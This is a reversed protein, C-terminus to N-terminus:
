PHHLKIITIIEQLTNRGCLYFTRRNGSSGPTRELRQSGSNWASPKFSLSGDIIQATPQGIVGHLGPLARLVGM